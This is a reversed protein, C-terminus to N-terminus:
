LRGPRKQGKEVVKMDALPSHDVAIADLGGVDPEVSLMRM